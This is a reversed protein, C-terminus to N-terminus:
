DLILVIGWGSRQALLSGPNFFTCIRVIREIESIAIRAANHYLIRLFEFNQEWDTPLTYYQIQINRMDTMFRRM